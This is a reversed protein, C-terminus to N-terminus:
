YKKIGKLVKTLVRYCTPFGSFIYSFHGRQNILLGESHSDTEKGLIHFTPSQTIHVFHGGGSSLM